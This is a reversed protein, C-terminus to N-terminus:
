RGGRGGRGRPPTPPLRPVGGGARSRVGGGVGGAGGGGGGVAPMSDAIARRMLEHRFAIRSPAVTLVGRREAAALAALGGPVVADVLWREVASPVVALQELSDLTAADLDRLRARVAASITPPVGGVDGSALVEAVFFPNGATVAFVRDPDLGTHAGLRRVAAASLRALPLRRLRPLGSALGLLQQLPHDRTVEDDRYTLVLVVPLGAIRRVLFRLVDLTAEDAWHVDEVVLVTPHEPWDLEARLADIVRGGDGSELAQTLGTGVGGALDGRPGLVRPTALDDCYGVLLRGEAPLVSRVADVLSSKGIGAEGAILVVSGDGAKAERAAAGLEALEREREVM